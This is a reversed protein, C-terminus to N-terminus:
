LAALEAQLRELKAREEEVLAPPAKAVFKENGLKGEARKIEGEIRQREADRKREAAGLDLGDTELVAIAGGPVPVTAVPAGDREVFEFRTMRAILDREFEGEISARVTVKPKVDVSERWNRLARVAAIADGVVREADDDRLADDADPLREGALLGEWRLSWIEETVFPIAPHALALTERLVHLVTAQAAEDGDYLRPKVFELYWDCLESFVFDYLGLALKAFDFEEV